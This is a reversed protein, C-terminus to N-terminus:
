YKIKVGKVGNKKEKINKKKQPPFIFFHSLSAGRM